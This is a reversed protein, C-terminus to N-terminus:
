LNIVVAGRVKHVPSPTNLESWSEVGEIWFLAILKGDPELLVLREGYTEAREAIFTVPALEQAKFRVVFIKRAV